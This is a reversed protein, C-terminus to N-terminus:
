GARGADEARAGCGADAGGWVWCARVRRCSRPGSEVRLLCTRQYRPFSGAFCTVGARAGRGGRGATGAADEGGAGGGPVAHRLKLGGESRIDWNLVGSAQYQYHPKFVFTLLQERRWM